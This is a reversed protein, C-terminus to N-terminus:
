PTSGHAAYDEGPRGIEGMLRRLANNLVSDQSSGLVVELPVKSIDVMPEDPPDQSYTEADHMTRRRGHQHLIRGAGSTM